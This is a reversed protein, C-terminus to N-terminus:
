DKQKEYYECKGGHHYVEDPKQEGDERSYIMCYAKDPADEFPPEGHSFRCTRCMKPNIPLCGFSDETQLNSKKQKEKSM